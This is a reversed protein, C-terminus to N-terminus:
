TILAIQSPYRVAYRIYHSSRGIAFIFSLMPVLILFSRLALPSLRLQLVKQRLVESLRHHSPRGMNDHILGRIPKEKVGQRIRKIQRCLVGKKEEAEKLTIKGVEVMKMLHWRQLQRQSLILKKGKM